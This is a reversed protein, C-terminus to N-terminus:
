KKTKNKAPVSAIHFLSNHNKYRMKVWHIKHVCKIGINVMDWKVLYVKTDHVAIYCFTSLNSIEVRDLNWM